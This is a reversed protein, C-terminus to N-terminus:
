RPRWAVIQRAVDQSDYAGAREIEFAGGVFHANAPEPNVEDAIREVAEEPTDAEVVVVVAYITGSMPGAGKQRAALRATLGARGEPTTM